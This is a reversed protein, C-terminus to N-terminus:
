YSGLYNFYICLKKIKELLKANKAENRQTEYEIIFVYDWKKIRSPRSEIRTMNMKCNKFVKLISFLSGPKDPVSFIIMSYDKLGPQMDKSIVFFKTENHKFDNIGEEIVNLGYESSLLISGIAASESDEKAMLAAKANSTAEILEAKPFNDFIYESCQNFSQAHTYIKRIKEKSGISLLNQKIVLTTQDYIKLDTKMFLDLTDVVTGASSNEAPVVGFDAEGNIVKRFVEYIREVDIFRNSKDFYKLAAEHTFTARPGFYAINKNEM